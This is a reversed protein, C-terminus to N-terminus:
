KKQKEMAQKTRARAAAEQRDTVPLKPEWFAGQQIGAARHERMNKVQKPHTNALTRMTAALQEPVAVTPVVQVIKGKQGFTDPEIFLVGEQSTDGTITALEKVTGAIAYTFRGMYEPNWALESVKAELVARSQDNGAFVVILPLGDSAAVDLGLRVDLTVPLAPLGKASEAKGSYQAAIENMHRAMDPADGFLGRTARGARTLKTKGDPALLAFTTNEVDRSGGIFLSRSFATEAEDEYTTLRICVFRRSAQIVEPQSLFSRDM